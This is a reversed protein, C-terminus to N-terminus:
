PLPWGDAAGPQQPVSVGHGQRSAYSETQQCCAHEHGDEQHVCLGVKQDLHGILEPGTELAHLFIQRSM